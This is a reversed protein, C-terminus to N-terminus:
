YSMPVTSSSTLTIPGAVYAEPLWSYSVTVTVANKITTRFGTASNGANARNDGTSWEATVTLRSAELGVVCPLVGQNRIESTWSAQNGPPLRNDIHYQAGHISAYRAGQRALYAVEQYRFVGMGLVAFGILLLFVLPGIIAFEVITAGKRRGRSKRGTTTNERMM